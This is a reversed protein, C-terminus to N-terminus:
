TNAITTPTQQHLLVPFASVNMVLSFQFHALSSQLMSAWASCTLALAVSFVHIYISMCNHMVAPTSAHM